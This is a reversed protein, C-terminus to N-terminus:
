VPTIVAETLSYMMYITRESYLLIVTNSSCKKVQEGSAQIGNDGEEQSPLVVHCKMFSTFQGAMFM